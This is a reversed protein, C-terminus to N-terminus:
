LIVMNYEPVQCFNLVCDVSVKDEWPCLTEKYCLAKVARCGAVPGSLHPSMGRQLSIVPKVPCQLLPVLFVLKAVAFVRVHLPAAGKVADSRGPFGHLGTELVLVGPLVRPLVM